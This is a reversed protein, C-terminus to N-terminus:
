NEHNMGGILANEVAKMIVKSSNTAGSVADVEIKQEKLMKTIISEAPKGRENQHELITINKLKGQKVSVTVKAYIYGVDYEGEYEGDAINKIAINTLEIQNVAKQYQTLSNVVMTIHLVVFLIMVITGLRHVAIWTSSLKKRFFYSAIVIAICIVSLGGSLYISRPRTQFLRFSFILHILVMLIFLIAAIKHIKVFLREAHKSNIRKTIFKTITLILLITAIIGFLM